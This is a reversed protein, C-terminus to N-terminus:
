WGQWWGTTRREITGRTCCWYSGGWAPVAYPCGWHRRSASSCQEAADNLSTPPLTPSLSSGHRCPRNSSVARCVAGAPSPSSKPIRVSSRSTTSRTPRYLSRRAGPSPGIIWCRRHRSTSVMIAIRWLRCGWARVAPLACSERTGTRRRRARPPDAAWCVLSPLRPGRRIWCSQTPCRARSGFTSTSSPCASASSTRQSRPSSPLPLDFTPDKQQGSPPYSLRAFPPPRRYTIRTPPPHVRRSTALSVPKPSSTAGAAIPPLAGATVTLVATTQAASRKPM